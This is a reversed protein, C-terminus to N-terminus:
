SHHARHPLILRAAVRVTLFLRAAQLVHHKSAMALRVLTCTRWWLTSSAPSVYPDLKRAASQVGHGLCCLDISIQPFRTRQLMQIEGENRKEPGARGLHGTREHRRKRRQRSRGSGLAGARM